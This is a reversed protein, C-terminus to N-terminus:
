PKVVVFENSVVGLPMKETKPYCFEIKIRSRTETGGDVDAKAVINRGERRGEIVACGKAGSDKVTAPLDPSFSAAKWASGKLREVQASRKIGIPYINVRSFQLTIPEGDKYVDRDTRVIIKENMPPEKKETGSTKEDWFRSPGIDIHIAKGHYYGVGCCDQPILYDRITVSSVGTMIIDAAEGDLHTSSSAAVKGAARWAENQSVSRLGDLIQISGGKFHDQLFDLLEILRLSVRWEPLSWDAGFINNIKKLGEEIYKDDGTRYQVTQPAGGRGIGLTITGDGHRIFPSVAFATLPLFIALVAALVFIRKM